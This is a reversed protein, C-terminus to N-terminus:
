LTPHCCSQLLGNRRMEQIISLRSHEMKELHHDIPKCEGRCIYANYRRPALVFDFGLEKFDVLMDQLCCGKQKEEATRCLGYSRKSRHGGVITDLVLFMSTDKNNHFSQPHVALNEGDYKAIVTLGYFDDKNFSSQMVDGNIRLRLMTSKALYITRELLTDGFSGDMLREKVEINVEVPIEFEAGIKLYVGLAARVIKRSSYKDLNTFQTVLMSQDLGKSPDTGMLIVSETAEDTEVESMERALRKIHEPIEAGSIDPPSKMHLSDLINMKLMEIRQRKIGEFCTQNCGFAFYVSVTFIGFSLLFNSRTSM